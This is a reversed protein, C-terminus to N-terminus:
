EKSKLTEFLKIRLFSQFDLKKLLLGKNVEYKNNQFSKSYDGYEKILSLQVDDKIFNLGYEKCKLKAYIISQDVLLEKSLLILNFELKLDNFEKDSILLEIKATSKAYNSKALKLEKQFIGITAAKDISMNLVNNYELVSDYISLQSIYDYIANRTEEEVSFKHQNLLNLQANITANEKIFTDKIGEIKSTIEEIDEKIAINENKKSYYSKYPVYLIAITLLIANVIGQVTVQIIPDM